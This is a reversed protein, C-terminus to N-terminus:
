VSVWSMQWQCRSWPIWVLLKSPLDTVFRNIMVSCIFWPLVKLKVFKVNLFVRIWRNIIWGWCEERKMKNTEYPRNMMDSLCATSDQLGFVSVTARSSGKPYASEFYCCSKLCIRYRVVTGCQQVVKWLDSYRHIWHSYLRVKLSFSAASEILHHFEKWQHSKHVVKSVGLLVSLRWM